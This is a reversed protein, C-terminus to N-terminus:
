VVTPSCHAAAVEKAEKEAEKEAEEVEVFLSYHAAAGVVEVEGVEETKQPRADEVEKAVKKTVRWQM